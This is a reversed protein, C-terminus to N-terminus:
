ISAPPIYFTSSKRTSLLFFDRRYGDLEQRKMLM